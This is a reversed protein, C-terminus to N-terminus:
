LIYRGIYLIIISKKDKKASSIPVNKKMETMRSSPVAKAIPIVRIATIKRIPLTEPAWTLGAMEKTIHIFFSIEDDFSSVYMTACNIPPYRANNHYLFVIGLLYFLKM